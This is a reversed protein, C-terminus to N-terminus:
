VMGYPQFNHRAVKDAGSGSPDNEAANHCEEVHKKTVEVLKRIRDRVAQKADETM